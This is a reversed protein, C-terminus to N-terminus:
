AEHAPVHLIIHQHPCIIEIFIFDRSTETKNSVGSKASSALHIELSINYM